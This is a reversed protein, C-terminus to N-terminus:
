AATEKNLLLKRFPIGTLVEIKAALEPSPRKKGSKIENLFAQSIGLQASLDKQKKGTRELYESISKYRM